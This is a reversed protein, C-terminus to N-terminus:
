LRQNILRASLATLTSVTTGWLLDVITVTLPWDKITALNTLDYTAYSAFGFLAAYALTSGLPLKETPIVVLIIIAAVFILYFLLAALLNPNPAMLYGLQKSYFNKAIFLLWIADILLFSIFTLGFLKLNQLM